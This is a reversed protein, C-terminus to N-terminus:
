LYLLSGLVGKQAVEIGFVREKQLILELNGRKLNTAACLVGLRHNHGCRLDRKGWKQPQARM